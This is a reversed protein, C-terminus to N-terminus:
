CASSRRRATWRASRFTSSSTTGARCQGRTRARSTATRPRERAAAVKRGKDDQVTFEDPALDLRFPRFRPEWAVEIDAVYNSNDSELLRVATVRRVTARFIGDYAM